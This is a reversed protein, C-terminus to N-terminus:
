RIGGNIAFSGLSVSDQVFVAYQNINGTDRFHFLSGGRTLDFPVLGPALNPNPTLGVSACNAPNTITSPGAAQGAANVCVPNFAPDTIGFQFNEYLRTQKLEM